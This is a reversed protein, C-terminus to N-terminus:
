ICSAYCTCGHLEIAASGGPRCVDLLLGEGIDRAVLRWTDFEFEVRSARTGAAELDGYVTLALTRPIPTATMVLGFGFGGDFSRRLGDGGDFGLGLGRGGILADGIPEAVEFGAGRRGGHELLALLHHAARGRFALRM